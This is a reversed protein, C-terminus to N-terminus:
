SVPDAGGALLDLVRPQLAPNSSVGSGGHITPEGSVDTFCGGAETVITLLPAADWSALVPDVMVQARGTAVLVHGYCDGWSRTMRAAAALARWGAEGAHGHFAAEDTTLVLSRNLRNETSVACPVGNWRCGRGRAATVTEGLAPLHVVGVVPEGEVEIGILVGWLPVGRVFSKTGDIPDLIWRISAGPLVEGHEEGVIGHDPYRRRIEARLLSEAERDAVTVPTDDAKTEVGIRTGFYGLAVEGAARALEEATRELDGLDINGSRSPNMPSTLCARATLGAGRSAPLGAHAPRTRGLTAFTATARSRAPASAASRRRRLDLDAASLLDQWRRMGEDLAAVGSSLTVGHPSLAPNGAVAEVMRRAAERAQDTATGPLVAVFEDGGLRATLAPCARPAFGADSRRAGNNGQGSAPAEPWPRSWRSCCPRESPPGCATAPCARSLTRGVVSLVEDGAVYGHRENFRKFDDVDFLALSFPRLHPGTQHSAALVGHALVGDLCLELHRRNPLGTLPDTLALRRNAEAIREMRRLRLELERVYRADILRRM